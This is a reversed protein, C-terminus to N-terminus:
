GRTAARSAPARVVPPDASEVEAAHDEASDEVEVEIEIEIEAADEDRPETSEDAAEDASGADAGDASRADIEAADGLLDPDGAADASCTIEVDTFAINHGNADITVVYVGDLRGTRTM